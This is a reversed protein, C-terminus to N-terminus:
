SHKTNYENRQSIYEGDDYFDIIKYINYVPSLKHTRNIILHLTYISTINYNRNKYTGRKKKEILKERECM